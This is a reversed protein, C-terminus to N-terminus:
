IEIEPQQDVRDSDCDSASAISQVVTDMDYVGCKGNSNSRQRDYNWLHLIYINEKENAM